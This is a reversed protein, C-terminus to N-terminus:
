AAEDDLDVSLFLDREHRRRTNLGNVVNGGAKNWRLFEAAVMGSSAKDNLLKLLTSNKFNGMGINYALSVMACFENETVDVRLLKQIARAPTTADEILQDATEKQTTRDSACAPRNFMWTSGYGITWVGAVDQYAQLKCGEYFKIVTLAKHLNHM